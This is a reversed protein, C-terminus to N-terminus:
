RHKKLSHSSPIPTRVSPSRASRSAPENCLLPKVQGGGAVIGFSAGDFQSQWLKAIVTEEDIDGAALFKPTGTSSATRQEVLIPWAAPEFEIHRFSKRGFAHHLHVARIAAPHRSPDLPRGTRVEVLDRRESPAGYAVSQLTGCRCVSRSRGGETKAANM